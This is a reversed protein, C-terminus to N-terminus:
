CFCKENLGILNYFIASNASQLMVIKGVHQEHHAHTGYIEVLPLVGTSMDKYTFMRPTRIDPYLSMDKYTFM